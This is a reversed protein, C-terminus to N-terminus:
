YKTLKKVANKLSSPTGFGGAKLGIVLPFPLNANSSIGMPFGPEFEDIISFSEVCLQQLIAHTTEGGTAILADYNGVKLVKAAQVSLQELLRKSSGIHEKPATIIAVDEFANLSRVDQDLSIEQYDLLEKQQKSIDNASGIVVLVKKNNGLSTRSIDSLECRQSLAYSLGVSGVWLVQNPNPIYAVLQNLCLQTQADLIIVAYDQMARKVMTATADAPLVISKGLSSDVLDIIQSHKCPHAPDNSYSSNSVLIGDVYQFGEITTRGAAPFAPAIVVQTRNGALFAAKIEPKIHGRLTSDITKLLIDRSSLLASLTSVADCAKAQSLNRSNSDVSIVDVDINDIMHYKCVVECNAGKNYFPLAADAASTLDDAIIAINM